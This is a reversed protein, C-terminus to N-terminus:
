EMVGGKRECALVNSESQLLHLDKIEEPIDEIAYAWIRDNQFNTKKEAYICFEDSPALFM